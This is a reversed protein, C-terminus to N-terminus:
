RESAAIYFSFCDGLDTRQGITQFSSCSSFTKWGHRLSSPSRPAHSAPLGCPVGALPWRDDRGVSAYLCAEVPCLCIIARDLFSSCFKIGGTRKSIWHMYAHSKKWLLRGGWGWRSILITQTAACKMSPKGWRNGSRFLRFAPIAQWIGEGM